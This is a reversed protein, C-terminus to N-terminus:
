LLDELGTGPKRALLPHTEPCHPKGIIATTEAVGRRPCTPPSISREAGVARLTAAVAHFQAAIMFAARMHQPLHDLHRRETFRATIRLLHAPEM